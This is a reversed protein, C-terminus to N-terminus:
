VQDFDLTVADTTPRAQCSLAFGRELEWPELAYNVAMEVAGEVVKCRCTACVGGKCSFPLDLGAAVAGDLLTPTDPPLTFSREIGRLRVRVATGTARPAVPAPAALAQGPNHFRETRIRAPDVGLEALTGAVEELMSAPGCLFFADFAGLDGLLAPLRRCREGDLRGNTLEVATRERSLFHHLRLRGLHRNKLDELEELFMVDDLTRNGYLLTVDSLPERNLVSRVIGLIPTIGSGGAIAVYRHRTAPALEVTFRGAPPMVAIRDGPSLSAHAFGSFRGGPIRKIAVRLEGDDVGSCISYSRRLEEGDVEAKLTLFQGPTFRFADRLGAPVDFAFSVADDTVARRDAIALPHFETM